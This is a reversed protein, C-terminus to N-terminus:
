IREPERDENEPPETAKEKEDELKQLMEQLDKDVNERRNRIEELIGKEKKRDVTTSPVPYGVINHAKLNFTLGGILKWDAYDHLPEPSSDSASSLGIDVALDVIIAFPARFKVGQTLRMSNKWFGMAANNVFIEGSYETYLIFPRLPIKFGVGLLMQDTARSSFPNAINHDLYGVNAYLKLPTANRFQTFDITFLAMAAWSVNDSSFPEYPLNHNQATPLTLRGRLGLKVGRTPLPARWKIGIETDGPPGWNHEQDDQYPTLQATLELNDSLGYTLGIAWTQDRGLTTEDGSFFSLYYSNLFVSGAQVTEASFVRLLGRGGSYTTQGVAPSVLLILLLLSTDYIRKM